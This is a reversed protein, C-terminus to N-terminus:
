PRVTYNSRPMYSGSYNSYQTYRQRFLVTSNAQSPATFTRWYYASPTGADPWQNLPYPDSVSALRGDNRQQEWGPGDANAAAVEPSSLVADWTGGPVPPEARQPPTECGALGLVMVGALLASGAVGRLHARLFGSVSAHRQNHACLM